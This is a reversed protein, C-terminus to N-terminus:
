PRRPQLAELQRRADEHRPDHKMAATLRAAAKDPQGLATWFPADAVLCRAVTPRRRLLEAQQPSARDGAALAALTDRVAGKPVSVVQTPAAPITLLRRLVDAAEGTRGVALMAEATVPLELAEHGPRLSGMLALLRPWDSVEMAELGMAWVAPYSQPNIKLTHAFLTHTDRWVAAQKHATVALAALPLMAVATWRWSLRSLAWAALWAPGLMALYFYHDAVTSFGQFAFPMLGLVPAVAVLSLGCGVGLWPARRRLVLCLLAVLVPVMWTYRVARSALLWTPSRGYDTTLHLPVALKWAYFALADLAVVPRLYWPPSQLADAPQAALGIVIIPGMLVAWPGATIVVQKLPRRLVWYDLMAAMLPLVLASPKSLMAAVAALTAWVWWALIVQRDQKQQVAQALGLYLWLACLSLLAYLVDKLESAWAVSEAQLPHVAFLLAGATAAWPRAGLRRLLALVMLAALAHTILSAAHFPWAAMVGSAPDFAAWALAAWITYTVPVFLGSPASQWYLLLRHLTPPRLDANAFIFIQDDWIVFSHRLIGQYVGVVALVVLASRALPQWCRQRPRTAPLCDMAATM